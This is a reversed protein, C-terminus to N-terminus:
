RAPPALSGEPVPCTFWTSLGLLLRSFRKAARDRRREPRPVSVEREDLFVLQAGPEAELVFCDPASTAGVELGVGRQEAGGAGVPRARPAARFEFQVGDLLGAVTVALPGRCLPFALVAPRLFRPDVLVALHV